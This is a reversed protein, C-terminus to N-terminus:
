LTVEQAVVGTYNTGAAIAEVAIGGIYRIALNTGYPEPHAHDWGTYPTLDVGNTTVVVGAASVNLYQGPDYGGFLIDILPKFPVGRMAAPIEYCYRYCPLGGVDETAPWTNTTPAMTTWAGAATSAQLYINVNTAPESSFYVWVSLLNTTGVQSVRQITAAINHNTTNPPDARPFDYGIYTVSYDNTALQNTLAAYEAMAEAVINSATDIIAQTEENFLQIAALQTASGLVGSPDVIGGGSLAFVLQSIRRAEAPPDPKTGGVYTAWALM